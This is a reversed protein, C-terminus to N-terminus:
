LCFNFYFTWPFYHIKSGIMIGDYSQWYGNGSHLPFGYWGDWWRWCRYTGSFLFYKLNLFKWQYIYNESVLIYFNFFFFISRNSNSQLYHVFHMLWSRRKNCLASTCCNEMKDSLMRIFHCLWMAGCTGGFNWPLLFLFKKICDARWIISKYGAGM